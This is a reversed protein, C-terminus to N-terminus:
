FYVYKKKVVSDFEQVSFKYGERSKKVYYCLLGALLMFLGFGVLTFVVRVGVFAVNQSTGLDVKVDFSDVYMTRDELNSFTFVKLRELYFGSAIQTGECFYEVFVGQSAV